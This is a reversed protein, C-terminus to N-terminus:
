LGHVFLGNCMISVLIEQDLTGDYFIKRHFFSRRILRTLLVYMVQWHRSTTKDRTISFLKMPQFTTRQTMSSTFGIWLNTRRGVQITRIIFLSQIVIKNMMSILYPPARTDKHHAFSKHTLLSWISQYGLLMIHRLDSRLLIDVKVGSMM